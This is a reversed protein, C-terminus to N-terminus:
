EAVKLDFMKIQLLTEDQLLEVTEWNIHEGYHRSGVPFTILHRPNGSLTWVPTAWRNGRWPLYILGIPGRTDSGKSTFGTIKVGDPRGSYTLISGVGIEVKDGTKKTLVAVEMTDDKWFVEAM